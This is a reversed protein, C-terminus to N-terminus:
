AFLKYKKMKFSIQKRRKQIDKGIRKTIQLGYCNNNNILNLLLREIIDKIFIFITFLSNNKSMITQNLINSYNEYDNIKKYTQIVFNNTKDYFTIHNYDGTYFNEMM